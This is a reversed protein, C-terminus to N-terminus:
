LLVLPPGLAFLAGVIIVSVLGMSRFLQKEVDMSPGSPLAMQALRITDRRRGVQRCESQLTSQAKM